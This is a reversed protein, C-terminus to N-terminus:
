RCSTRTVYSWVGRARVMRFCAWLPADRYSSYIALYVKM